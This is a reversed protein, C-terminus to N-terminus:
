PRPPVDPKQRNPLVVDPRLPLVVEPRPPIEPRVAVHEPRPPLYQPRPPVVPLPSHVQDQIGESTLPREGINEYRASVYGETEIENNAEDTQGREQTDQGGMTPPPPARRVPQISPSPYSPFCLEANQQVENQNFHEMLGKDSHTESLQSLRDSSNDGSNRDAVPWNDCTNLPSSSFHSAQGNAIIGNAPPHHLGFSPPIKCPVRLVVEDKPWSDGWPDDDTADLGVTQDNDMTVTGNAESGQPKPQQRPKRDKCVPGISPLVSALMRNIRTM